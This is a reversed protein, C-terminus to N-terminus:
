GGNGFSLPAPRLFGTHRNGVVPVLNTATPTQTTGLCEPLSQFHCFKLLM